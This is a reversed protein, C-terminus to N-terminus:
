GRHDEAGPGQAGHQERPADSRQGGERPEPLDELTAYERM